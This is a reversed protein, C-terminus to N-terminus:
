QLVRSKATYCVVRDNILKSTNTRPFGEFGKRTVGADGDAIM